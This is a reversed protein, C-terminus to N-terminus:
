GSINIQRDCFNNGSLSRLFIASKVLTSSRATIEVVGLSAGLHGGHEAVVDIIYNRLEDALKPLENQKLKRLDKPFDIQQLLTYEDQLM